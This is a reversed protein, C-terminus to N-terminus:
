KAWKKVVLTQKRRWWRQLWNQPWPNEFPKIPRSGAYEAGEFWMALVLEGSRLARIFDAADTADDTPDGEHWGFHAHYEALGVTIEEEESSVWLEWGAPSVVSIMFYAGEITVYSELDPLLALLVGLSKSSYATLM